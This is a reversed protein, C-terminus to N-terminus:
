DAVRLSLRRVRATFGRLEAPDPDPGYRLRAYSELVPQLQAALRPRLTAIRMAYALPGESPERPLGQAALRECLLRYARALADGDRRREMRGLRLAIWALWAVLAGAMLWALQAVRPSDFGLRSLLGLQSRLDFELVQGKWWTNVTDWALRADALWGIERLMRDTQSVGGPMSEFFGRSLRDPAVVSTPDVRTWGRGELWVEAWARADSQRVIYYAGIPNWEGGQYGTVVRAPLGAARALTAFASAYHGCFGQRTNFLFDDISDLDLRPPTLTYSYGGTRFRDLVARVFGAEDPAAARLERALAVSRTNRGAPLQLALRRQLASLPESARTSTHSNLEYSVPQTVPRSAVLQYDYTFVVGRDPSGTPTDLAFWWSRQHPELTVRYRYADGLYRLPSQRYFSRPERRWTYGDFNQLVPGRWYMDRPAPIRGFFRVYSSSLESIAGPSMENSLGTVGAGTAPLAWVQGQLRPFFLFLALAIPLAFGLTRGALGLAARTGLQVHPTGVIALAACTLWVAGVYLPVRLLSQRDLCAAVVLFLSVGLVVYYDRRARTELLKLAGMGALLSTGAGLGSVTSFQLAVALLLAAGILLRAVRGPLPRGRLATGARWAALALVAVSCWPPLRDVHLLVTGIFVGTTWFLARPGGDEPTTSAAPRTGHEAM